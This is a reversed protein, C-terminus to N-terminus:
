RSVQLDALRAALARIQLELGALDTTPPETVRIPAQFNTGDYTWGEAIDNRGTIDVWILDPHYLKTVDADTKLLEAVVGNDIRAYTRTPIV